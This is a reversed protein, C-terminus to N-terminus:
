LVTSTGHHDAFLPSHRMYLGESPFGHDVNEACLAAEAWLVKARIDEVNVPYDCYSPRQQQQKTVMFCEGVDRSAKSATGQKYLDAVAYRLSKFRRDICKHRGFYSKSTARGCNSCNQRPPGDPDFGHLPDVYPM